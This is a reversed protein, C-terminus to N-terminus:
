LCKRLTNISWRKKPDITLLGSLIYKIQNKQEITVNLESIKSDLRNISPKTYDILKMKQFYNKYYRTEKLFSEPFYGCTDCILTLHYYDRSYTSDKIPDFLLKGSVLEYFTCGLAWMDVPYTCKSMLIIEPAQYYRTGFSEEYYNHEKCHTGFDALSISMNKLFKNDINYNNIDTCKLDEIIKLSITKHIAKRITIKNKTNIKKGNAGETTTGRTILFNEKAKRFTDPFNAEKYKDIIFKDKNNIGKVLINDTKIDGHFVKYNEHLIKISLVLQKMINIASDYDFGNTFPGKRLLSDINTCHLEWVSCLFKQKDIEEVFYEVINNFVNPNKPLKQVFKIESLGDIYEDPNQVKLAYFNNNIINYVLWVISFSGRGIEYIVNYHKIINYTLDINNLNDMNEDSSDSIEETDTDTNTSSM